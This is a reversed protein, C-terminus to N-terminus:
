HLASIAASQGAMKCERLDLAYNRMETGLHIQVQIPVEGQVNQLRCRTM